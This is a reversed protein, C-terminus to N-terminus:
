SKTLIAPLTCSVDEGYGDHVGFISVKDELSLQNPQNGRDEPQLNLIAASKDEMSM